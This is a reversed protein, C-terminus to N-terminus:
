VSGFRARVGAFAPDGRLPALDPDDLVKPDDLGLTVAHDLARLANGTDGARAYSCALNFAVIPPVGTAAVAREGWRAAEAYRGRAHLADLAGAAGAPGVDRLWDDLDEGRAILVLALERVPWEPSGQLGRAVVDRAVREQGDALLVAAEFAPDLKMDRPLSLVTHMAQRPQGLRVLAAARLLLGVPSEDHSVLALTEEPRDDHLARDARAVNSTPAKPPRVRALNGAGIFMVFAAAIPQRWAILGVATAAAVVVSVLSSRRVKAADDGPMLALLVHGGDLPLMPLLNGLGWVMNIFIGARFAYYVLTHPEPRVAHYVVLVGLGFAVGALPGAVSVAIRRGRGARGADWRTLGAMAYLDIRPEGGVPKAVFAHGLEHALVSVTVVAVWVLAAGVGDETYGFFFAIVLFSAHITVPFGFLPFTVLGKNGAGPVPLAM